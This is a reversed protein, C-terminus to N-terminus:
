DWLLPGELAEIAELHGRTGVLHVIAGKWCVGVAPKAPGM